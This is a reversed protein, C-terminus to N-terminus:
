GQNGNDNQEDTPEFVIEDGMAARFQEDLQEASMGDFGAEADFVPVQEELPVSDVPVGDVPVDGAPAMDPMDSFDGMQMRAVADRKAQLEAQLEEISKKGKKKKAAKAAKAKREAKDAVVSNELSIGTEAEKEKRMESFMKAYKPDEMKLKTHVLKEKSVAETKNHMKDRMKILTQNKKIIRRQEAKKKWYIGMRIFFIILLVLLVCFFTAIILTKYESTSLVTKIGTVRVSFNLLSVTRLDKNYISVQVNCVDGDLETTPYLPTIYVYDPNEARSTVVEIYKNYDGSGDAAQASVVLIEYNYGSHYGRLLNLLFLKSISFQGNEAMGLETSHGGDDRNMITIEKNGKDIQLALNRGTVSDKATQAAPAVRFAVEYNNVTDTFLVVVRVVPPEQSSDVANTEVGIYKQAQTPDLYVSKLFAIEDVSKTSWIYSNDDEKEKVTANANILEGQEVRFVNGDVERFSLANASLGAISNALANKMESISVTATDVVNYTTGLSLTTAVSVKFADTFTEGFLSVTYRVWATGTTVPTLILLEHNTASPEVRLVNEDSSEAVVTSLALVASSTQMRKERINFSEERNIPATLELPEDLAKFSETFPAVSVVFHLYITEAADEGYTLPAASSQFRRVEVTFRCDDMVRLATVTFSTTGSVTFRLAPLAIGFSEQLKNLDSQNSSGNYTISINTTDTFLNALNVTVQGGNAINLEMPDYSYEATFDDDNAIASGTTTIRSENGTANKNEITLSSQTFIQITNEGNLTAGSASSSEEKATVWMMNAEGLTATNAFNTKPYAVEGENEETNYTVFSGVMGHTATFLVVQYSIKLVATAQTGADADAETQTLAFRLGYKNDFTPCAYGGEQETSGIFLTKLTDYASVAFTLEIERSLSEYNFYPTRGNATTSLTFHDLQVADGDHDDTLYRYTDDYYGSQGYYGLNGAAVKTSAPFGGDAVLAAEYMKTNKNDGTWDTPLTAGLDTLVDSLGQSVDTFALSYYRNYPNNPDLVPVSSNGEIGKVPDTVKAEYAVTYPTNGVSVAIQAQKCDYFYSNGSAPEVSRNFNSESDYRGVGYKMVITRGQTSRVPTIVFDIYPKRENDNASYYRFEVTFYRAVIAPAVPTTLNNSWYFKVDNQGGVNTARADNTTFTTKSVTADPGNSVEYKNVTVAASAAPLLIRQADGALNEKVFEYNANQTDFTGSVYSAANDNRNIRNETISGLSVTVTSLTEEGSNAATNYYGTLFDVKANTNLDWNVITEGTEDTFTDYTEVKYGGNYTVHFIEGYTTLLFLHDGYGGYLATVKHPNANGTGSAVGYKTLETNVTSTDTGHSGFVTVSGDGTLAAGIYDTKDLYAADLADSNWKEANPANLAADSYGEVVPRGTLIKGAVAQVYTSGTPKKSTYATAGFVHLAGNSDLVYAQGSGATIPARYVDSFKTEGDSTYLTGTSTNLTINTDGAAVHWYSNSGVVSEQQTVANAVAQVIGTGDSGQTYATHYDGGTGFVGNTATFANGAYKLDTFNKGKFRLNNGSDMFFLTGDGVYVKGNAFQAESGFDSKLKQLNTASAAFEMQNYLNQGWVYNTAGDYASYNYEGASLMVSSANLLNKLTNQTNEKTYNILAPEFLDLTRGNYYATGARTGDRLLLNTSNVTNSDSSDLTPEEVDKGWVYIYKHATVFAATKRTAAIQVISDNPDEARGVETTSATYFKVELRIPTSPYYQGLTADAASQVLATNLGTENGGNRGGTKDLLSWAYLDNDYTLAIAFDDGAAIQKFKLTEIKANSGYSARAVPLAVLGLLTTVAFLLGLCLATLFYKKSKCRM